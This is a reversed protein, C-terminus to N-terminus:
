ALLEVARQEPVRYQSSGVISFFSKEYNRIPQKSDMLMTMTLNKYLFETQQRRLSPLVEFFYKEMMRPIDEAWRYKHKYTLFINM